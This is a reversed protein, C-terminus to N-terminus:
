SFHGIYAIAFAAACFVGARSAKRRRPLYWRSLSLLFDEKGKGFWCCWVSFELVCACEAVEIKNVRGELELRGDRAKLPERMVIAESYSM